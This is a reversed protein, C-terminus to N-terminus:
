KMGYSSNIVFIYEHLFTSDREHNYLHQKKPELVYCKDIRQVSDRKKNNIKLRKADISLALCGHQM